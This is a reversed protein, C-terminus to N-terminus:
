RNGNDLDLLENCTTFHHYQFKLIEEKIQHFVKVLLFVEEEVQKRPTTQTSFASYINIEEM